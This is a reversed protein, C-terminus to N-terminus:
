LTHDQDTNNLNLTYKLSGYVDEYCAVKNDKNVDTIFYIVIVPVPNEPKM